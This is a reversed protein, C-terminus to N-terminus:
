TVTHQGKTMKHIMTNEILTKNLLNQCKVQVEKCSLKVTYIM